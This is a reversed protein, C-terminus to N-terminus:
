RGLKERLEAELKDDEFYYPDKGGFNGVIQALRLDPNSHWYQRLLELIRNIREPDRMAVKRKREEFAEHIVELLDIFSFDKEVGGV